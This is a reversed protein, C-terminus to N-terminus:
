QFDTEEGYTGTESGASLSISSRPTTITVTVTGPFPGEPGPPCTKTNNDYSWGVLASFDVFAIEGCPADLEWTITADPPIGTTTPLTYRSTTSMADRVVNIPGIKYSLATGPTATPGFTPEPTVPEPTATPGFTLPPTETPGPTPALTPDANGALGTGFALGAIVVLILAGAGLLLRRNPGGARGGSLDGVTLPDPEAQYMVETPEEVAMMSPPLPM